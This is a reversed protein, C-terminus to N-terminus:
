SIFARNALPKVDRRPILFFLVMELIDYDLFSEPDGNLFRDKVRERHNVYFKEDEAEQIYEKKIFSQEPLEFEKEFNILLEQNNKKYDKEISLDSVSELTALFVDLEKNNM